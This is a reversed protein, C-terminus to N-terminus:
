KKKEEEEDEEESEEQEQIEEKVGKVDKSGKSGKAGKADKSGKGKPKAMVRRFEGVEADHTKNWERTFASRLATPLVVRKTAPVLSVEELAGFLDDRTVGMEDMAEMTRRFPAGEGTIGEILRRQLIEAMEM